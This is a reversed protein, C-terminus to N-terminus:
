ALWRHRTRRGTQAGARPGGSKQVGVYEPHADLAAPFLLISGFTRAFVLQQDTTLQQDRFFLVKHRVLLTRLKAKRAEALPERLDLGAIEAGITPTSLQVRVPSPRPPDLTASPRRSAQM